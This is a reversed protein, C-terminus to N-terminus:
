TMRLDVATISIYSRLLYTYIHQTPSGDCTPRSVLKRNKGFMKTTNANEQKRKTTRKKQGQQIVQISM